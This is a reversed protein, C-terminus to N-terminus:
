FPTDQSRRYGNQLFYRAACAAAVAAALKKKKRVRSGAKDGFDSVGRFVLWAVGYEECTRAFGSGEMEGARVKDHYEERMEPLRGDDLLKEGALIIGSDISPHWKKPVAPFQRHKRRATAYVRGIDKAWNSEQTRAYSFDRTMKHDPTYPVPRRKAGEATLRQGEYDLVLDSAIVDGIEVAGKVGAAIGVLVAAGVEYAQLLRGCAVACPLTRAEGVMTVVVSLTAGGGNQQLSHEWFRLGNVYHSDKASFDIGLMAKVANLEEPIITVFAVDVQKAPVTLEKKEKRSLIHKIEDPAYSELMRSLFQFYQNPTLLSSKTLFDELLMKRIASPTSPLNHLATIVQLADSAREQMQSRTTTM